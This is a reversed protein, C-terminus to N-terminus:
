YWSGLAQIISLDWAPTPPLFFPVAPFTASLHDPKLSKFHEVAAFHSSIYNFSMEHSFIVWTDIIWRMACLHKCAGGRTQFDPCSCSLQESRHFVM